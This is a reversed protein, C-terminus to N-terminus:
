PVLFFLIFSFKVQHFGNFVSTTKVENGYNYMKLANLRYIDVFNNEIPDGRIKWM